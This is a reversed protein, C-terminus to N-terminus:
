SGRCAGGGEWGRQDWRYPVVPTLRLLMVATTQRLFGGTEIAATVKALQQAVPGAEAESQMESKIVKEALQRGVGRAVTFANFAALSVGILM